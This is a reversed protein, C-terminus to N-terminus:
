KTNTYLKENLNKLTTYFYRKLRLQVDEMAKIREELKPVNWMLRIPHTYDNIALYGHLSFRYRSECESAKEIMKNIASLKQLEQNIYISMM